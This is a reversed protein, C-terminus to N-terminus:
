LFRLRTHHNGQIKHLSWTMAFPKQIQTPAKKNQAIDIQLSINGCIVKTPKLNAISSEEAEQPDIVEAVTFPEMEQPHVAEASTHPLIVETEVHSTIKFNKNYFDLVDQAGEFGNNKKYFGLEALERAKELKVKSTGSRHCLWIDKRSPLQTLIFITLHYKPILM